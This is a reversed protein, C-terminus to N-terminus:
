ECDFFFSWFSIVSYNGYRVPKMRIVTSIYVLICKLKIIESFLNTRDSRPIMRYISVAKTAIIM